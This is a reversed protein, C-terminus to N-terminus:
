LEGDAARSSLTVKFGDLSRVDAPQQHGRLLVRDDYANWGMQGFAEQANGDTTATFHEVIAESGLWHIATYPKSM